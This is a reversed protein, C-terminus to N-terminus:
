KEDIDIGILIKNFYINSFNSLQKNTEYVILDELQKEKNLFVKETKIDELKLILQGGPTNIAETVEGIKLKEIRNFMEKSLQNKKIWGIKGGYKATDSFSFKSATNEFGIEKISNKIDLVKQVMQKKNETKFLIESLMYLTIEDSKKNNKIKNKLKDKDVEVNSKFKRYILTNWLTEIEFKHKVKSLSINYSKFYAKAEDESNLNLSTYLDQIVEDVRKINQGFIFYKLLEDKKIVERILSNKAIDFKKEKSLSRFNKNIAGLYSMEDNVDIVTIIENNIKILIYNEKIESSAIIFNNPTIFFLV